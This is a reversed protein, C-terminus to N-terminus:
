MLMRLWATAAKRRKLCLATWTETRAKEPPPVRRILGHEDQDAGLDTSAGARSGVGDSLGLEGAGEEEASCLLCSCGRERTLRTKATGEVECCRLRAQFLAERTEPMPRSEAASCMGSM